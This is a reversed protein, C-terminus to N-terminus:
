GLSGLLFDKEFNPISGGELSATEEEDACV